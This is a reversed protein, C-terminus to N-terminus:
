SHSFYQKLGYVLGAFPMGLAAYVAEAEPAANDALIEVAVNSYCVPIVGAQQMRAVGMAVQTQSFGGSADIVAFSNYGDAIASMAPFALCVDTSIGTVILNKRGTAKVADVVRREDWANVTTREIRQVGPLAEALEPILPGWMGETTTTVIIPLKLALAAKTLGVVNHMLTLTDIDRVGTYLGVQHDVLLLIANERTLREYLHPSNM